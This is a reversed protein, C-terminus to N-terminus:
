VVRPDASVEPQRDQRAQVKEKFAAIEAQVRGEYCDPCIGHSFQADTHLTVYSEVQQWYDSDDRVRKCYACIPLIGQLQKVHALSEELERVRAALDNRLEIMRAGVGVRARLEAHNFPKTVFDDAGSELGEVLDEKSRRATLLIIYFNAGPHEARLARCIDVGDKGPMMWDLIALQPAGELLLASYASSGDHYPTVEHGWKKLAMELLSRSIHDDEAILVRM